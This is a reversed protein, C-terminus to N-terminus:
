LTPYSADTAIGCQNYKNRVMMIYGSMGWNSGWSYLLLFVLIHVLTHHEIDWFSYILYLCRNKLLWYDKGKYQGYGTLVM